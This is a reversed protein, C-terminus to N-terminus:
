VDIIGDSCKLTLLNYIVRIFNQYNEPSGRARVFWRAHLCRPHRVQLHMVHIAGRGMQASWADM